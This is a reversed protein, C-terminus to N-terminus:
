DLSVVFSIPQSLEHMQLLKQLSPNQEIRIKKVIKKKIMLLAENIFQNEIEIKKVIQKKIM